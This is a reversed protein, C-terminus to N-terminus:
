VADKIFQSVDFQQEYQSEDWLEALNWRDEVSSADSAAASKRKRKAEPAGNEKTPQEGDLIFMSMLEDTAMTQLSRNDAGILAKDEVTGQTILRYVNVKRTQGIRHARDIAQLDKMPNWDHDLFIVVDAGTLNLGVGGIHTTLVLVDILHDSNFRDVVSQRDSPAVSGDLVLHSIPAGFDGRALAASVLQVSSKWQCFILARHPLEVPISSLPDEDEPDEKEITVGIGCENLLQGLAALKGSTAFQLLKMIEEPAALKTLVDEILSPHDVLQRLATLAHLPSIGRRAALQTRNATCRDVIFKYITRQEDSLQCQYDQVNKDPLERLVESKLRRM